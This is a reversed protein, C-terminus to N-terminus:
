QVGLVDVVRGSELDTAQVAQESQVRGNAHRGLYMISYVVMATQLFIICKVNYYKIALSYLAHNYGSLSAELNYKGINGHHVV